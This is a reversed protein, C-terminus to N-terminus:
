VYYHWATREEARTVPLDRKCRGRKKKENEFLFSITFMDSLLVTRLPVSQHLEDM